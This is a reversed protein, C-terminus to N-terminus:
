NRAIRSMFYAGLERAHRRLEPTAKQEAYCRTIREMVEGLNGEATATSLVAFSPRNLTYAKQGEAARIVGEQRMWDEARTTLKSAETDDIESTLAKMMARDYLSGPLPTKGYINGLSVVLLELFLERMSPAATPDLNRPGEAAALAPSVREMLLDLPSRDTAM